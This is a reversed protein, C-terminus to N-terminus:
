DVKGTPPPVRIADINVGLTASPVSLEPVIGSNPTLNPMEINQNIEPLYFGGQTDTVPQTSVGQISYAPPAYSVDGEASYKSNSHIADNYHSTHSVHSSHSEHSVHSGHGWSGSSHSSHSSHSEHSSHSSHSRHAAFAEMSLLLGFLVAMTGLVVLKNAPINGEEDEILASINKKISPFLKDM